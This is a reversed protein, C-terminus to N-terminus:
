RTAWTLFRLCKKVSGEKEIWFITRLYWGEPKQKQINGSHVTEGGNGFSGKLYGANRGPSHFIGTICLVTLVFAGKENFINQLMGKLVGFHFEYIIQLKGLFM